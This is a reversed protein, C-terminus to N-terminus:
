AFATICLNELAPSDAVWRLHVRDFNDVLDMDTLILPVCLMKQFLYVDHSFQVVRIDQLEM